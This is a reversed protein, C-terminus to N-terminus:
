WIWGVVTHDRQLEALKGSIKQSHGESDGLTGPHGDRGETALNTVQKRLKLVTNQLHEVDDWGVEVANVKAQNRISRARSAYKITNLTESINYEIGSVCAIM